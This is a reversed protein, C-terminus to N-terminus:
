PSDNLMALKPLEFAFGSAYNICLRRLLPARDALKLGINRVARLSPNHAGFLQNFGTM